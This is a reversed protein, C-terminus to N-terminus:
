QKKKEAIQDIVSVFDRLVANIVNYFSQVPSYITALLHSLAQERTPMDKISKLDKEAVVKGDFIGGKLVLKENTKTFKDIVRAPTAGDEYGFAIATPGVLKGIISDYGKEKAVMRTFTNKVVVFEVGAEYFQRRLDTMEAVTLGLNDTFFVGHARNMKERLEDVKAVKEPRPERKLVATDSM